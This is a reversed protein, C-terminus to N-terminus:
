NRIIFYQFLMSCLLLIDLINYKIITLFYQVYFSISFFNIKCWMYKHNGINKEIYIFIKKYM